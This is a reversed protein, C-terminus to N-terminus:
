ATRGLTQKIREAVEQPTVKPRPLDASVGRRTKLSVFRLGPARDGLLAELEDTTAIRAVSEYGCSAAVGALDMSHAVTSQGGTSEHAENDLLVHVLNPPQEYAVTALAGLRMLMAGDGDIVVVRRDPRAWALGLGISSACGM